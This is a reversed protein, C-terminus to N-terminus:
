KEDSASITALAVNDPPRASSADASDAATTATPAVTVVFSTGAQSNTAAPAVSIVFGPGAKGALALPSVTSEIEAKASKSKGAWYNAMWTTNSLISYHVILSTIAVSGLFLPLGVTPSVVCWIRGQNM